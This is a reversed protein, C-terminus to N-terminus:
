YFINMVVMTPAAARRLLAWTQDGSEFRHTYVRIVYYLMIIYM